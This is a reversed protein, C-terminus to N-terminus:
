LDWGPRLAGEVVRLTDEMRKVVGPLGPPDVPCTFGVRLCAMAFSVVLHPIPSEQTDLGRRAAIAEVLRRETEIVRAHVGSALHPEADLLRRVKLFRETDEHTASEITRLLARLAHAMSTFPPEDAPRSALAELITQENEDHMWLILHDKGTFYRFLTRPSIEAAAAIQDITTSEYGQELFLDLATDLIAFRTREKKRERLGM